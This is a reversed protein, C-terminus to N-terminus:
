IYKKGDARASVSKKWKELTFGPDMFFAASGAEDALLEKARKLVERLYEAPFKVVGHLDMHVMDGPMVTMGGITVPIGVAKVMMNGHSPTVGTCYYQVGLPKIADIDRMPGNTVVGVVGLAKYRTTMMEGFLGVRNALEPPFQQEAVLVVPKKTSNIHDPLAWRDVGTYKESEECFVVTTVHGVIPGMEPYVCRINTDTYWSGYWADYLKLCADSKPYTAVVNSITPTDIKRLQEIIEMETLNKM